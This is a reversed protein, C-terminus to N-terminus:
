IKEVYFTKSINFKKSLEAYKNQECRLGLAGVANKELFVKAGRLDHIQLLSQKKSPVFDSNMRQDFLLVDYKKGGKCYAEVLEPLKASVSKKEVYHSVGYHWSKRINDCIVIMPTKFNKVLYGLLIRYEPDQVDSDIIYLDPSLEKSYKTMKYVNNTAFVEVGTKHLLNGYRELREKKDDVIFVRGM